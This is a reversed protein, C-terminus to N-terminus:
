YPNYRSMQMEERRKKARSKKVIGITVCAVAVAAAVPILKKATQAVQEQMEPTINFMGKGSNALRAEEIAKRVRKRYVAKGVSKCIISVVILAVAIAATIILKNMTVDLKIGFVKLRVDNSLSHGGMTRWVAYGGAALALVVGVIATLISLVSWLVSKRVKM